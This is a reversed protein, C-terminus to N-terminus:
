PVGLLGPAASVFENCGEYLANLVQDANEKDVCEWSTPGGIIGFWSLASIGTAVRTGDLGWVEHFYAVDSGRVRLFVLTRLSAVGFAAEFTICGPANSRIRKGFVEGFLEMVRERLELRTLREASIVPNAKMWADTILAGRASLIYSEVLADGTPENPSNLEAVADVHFRKLLAMAFLRRETPNLLKMRELFVKVPLVDFKRILPFDSVIEKEVYEQSWRYLKISFPEIKHGSM